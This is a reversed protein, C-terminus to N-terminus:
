LPHHPRKGCLCGGQMTHSIMNVPACVKIRPDIASLAFTQTGGGSAGTCGIRDKDVEPLSQLFDVVRISSWLQMAFPHLGWLKEKPGGWNHEFQLSDNYGIMDYSFVVMGMRAMTICRAPVSCLETNELRGEKWHGHPCAVGPFPGKGVPRYLNGTVLFGPRAEISVKEVTYDPREIRGTVTANLPTKEPLPYLGSSIAIRTRLRAALAEWEEVSAFAPMTFVTDTHKIHTARADHIMGPQESAFMDHQFVGPKFGEIKSLMIGAVEKGLTVEAKGPKFELSGAHGWGQKNEDKLRKRVEEMTATLKQGDVTAEAGRVASGLLWVDYKSAEPAAVKGQQAQYADFWVVQPAAGVATAALVMLATLM